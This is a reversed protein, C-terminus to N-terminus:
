TCVADEQTTNAQTIFDSMQAASPAADLLAQHYADIAAQIGAAVTRNRREWAQRVREEDLAGLEAAHQTLFNHLGDSGGYRVDNRAGVDGPVLHSFLRPAFKLLDSRHGNLSAHTIVGTVAQTPSEMLGLCRESVRSLASLGAYDFGDLTVGHLDRLAMSLGALSPHGARNAFGGVSVDVGTFGAALASLANATALEYDNHFHGYLRLGPDRGLLSATLARVREPTAVGSTDVIRIQRIGHGTAAAVM